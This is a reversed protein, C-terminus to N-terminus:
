AAEGLAEDKLGAQPDLGIPHLLADLMVLYAAAQREQRGGLAGLQLADSGNVDQQM